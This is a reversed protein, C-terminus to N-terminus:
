KRKKGALWLIDQLEPDPTTNISEIQVPKVAEKSSTAPNTTPSSQKQKIVKAIEDEEDDPKSATPAYNKQLIKTPDIKDINQTVGPIQPNASKFSVPEVKQSAIPEFKFPAPEASKEKATDKAPAAKDTSATPAASTKAPKDPTTAAPTASTPAASTKAPKTVDPKAEPKNDAVPPKDSGFKNKFWDVMADGKTRGSLEGAEASKAGVLAGLAATGAAALKGKKASAVQRDQMMNSLNSYTSRVTDNPSLNPNQTYVPNKIVRVEGTRKDKKRVYEPIVSSLTADPGQQLIQTAKEPGFFHSMYLSGSTVPVKSSRLRNIYDQTAIALTQKQLNTDAKFEEWTKGYLPSGPQAQKVMGKFTSPMFQAIGFASSGSKNQINKGGSERSVVNRLFQKVAESDDETLQLSENTKGDGPWYNSGRAKLKDAASQEPSIEDAPAAASPANASPTNNGSNNRNGSGSSRSGNNIWSPDVDPTNSGSSPTPTSASDTATDGSGTNSAPPDMVARMPGKVLGGLSPKWEQDAPTTLYDAATAAGGVTLATATKPNRSAWGPINDLEKQKIKTDLRAQKVQEIGKADTTGYRFNKYRDVLGPKKAAAAAPEPPKSAVPEAPKAAAPEPPKAAPPQAPKPLDLEKGVRSGTRPTVPVDVPRAAKRAAATGKEYASYDTSTPIDVDRKVVDAAKEGKKLMRAAVDKGMSWLGAEDLDHEEMPMQEASSVSPQLKKALEKWGGAAKAEDRAINFADLGGSVVTGPGPVTGAAASLGAIGAGVYDKDATRAAADALGFGVGIGFPAYKGAKKVATKALDVGGENVPKKVIDSAKM